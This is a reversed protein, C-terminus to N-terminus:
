FTHLETTLLLNQSSCLCTPLHPLESLAIIHSTIHINYRSCSNVIFVRITNTNTTKFAALPLHSPEHLVVTKVIAILTQIVVLKMIELKLTIIDEEDILWWLYYRKNHYKTWLQSKCHVQIYWSKCLWPNPVLFTSRLLNCHSLFLFRNWDRRM